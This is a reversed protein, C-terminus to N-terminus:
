KLWIVARACAPGTRQGPKGPLETIVELMGVESKEIMDAPVSYSKGMIRVGGACVRGTKAAALIQQELDLRSVALDESTRVTYRSAPLQVSRWRMEDLEAAYRNKNLPPAGLWVAIQRGSDAPITVGLLEKGYGPKSVIVAYHGKRVPLFFAGTSDTTTWGSSSVRVEAGIIPRQSKDLVFGGLGIRSASSIMAPLPRTAVEMCIRVVAGSDGISAAVSELEFGIRRILLEYDGRPLGAIQFRGRQDTSTELRPKRLSVRADPIPKLDTDTVLGIITQASAPPAGTGPACQQAKLSMPGLAVSLALVARPRIMSYRFGHLPAHFFAYLSM